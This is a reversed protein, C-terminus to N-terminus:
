VFLVKHILISTIVIATYMAIVKAWRKLCAHKQSPCPNSSLSKYAQDYDGTEVAHKFALSYLLPLHQKETFQTAQAALSVIAKSLGSRELM